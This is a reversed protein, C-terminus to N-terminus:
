SPRSFPIKRAPSKLLIPKKIEFGDGVTQELVYVGYPLLKTKAYGSKDTILHDREFERANEYSGAKRLYVHFEAGEEPTETHQNDTKNDGLVKVIAQVGLKIENLKLADYTVVAERSQAAASATDVLM